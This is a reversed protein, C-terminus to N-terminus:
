PRSTSKRATSASAAAPPSSRTETASPTLFMGMDAGSVHSVCKTSPRPQRNSKWRRLREGRWRVERASASLTLRTRPAAEFGALSFVHEGAFACEDSSREVADAPGDRFRQRFLARLDHEVAEARLREDVLPHLRQLLSPRACGVVSSIEGLGVLDLGHHGIGLLPEPGDVDDDVVGHRPVVGEDLVHRDLLPVVCKCDVQRRREVDRAQCHGAHLLAIPTAEDIDGGVIAEGACRPPGVVAAGLVAEDSQRLHHRELSQRM